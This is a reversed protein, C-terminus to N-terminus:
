KEGDGAKTGGEGSAPLVSCTTHRKLLLESEFPSRRPPFALLRWGSIFPAICKQQERLPSRVGGNGARCRGSLRPVAPRRAPRAAGPCRRPEGATNAAPPRLPRGFYCLLSFDWPRFLRPKQLLGTM